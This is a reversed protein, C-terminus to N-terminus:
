ENIYNYRLDFFKNKKKTMGFWPPMGNQKNVRKQIKRLSREVKGGTAVGLSGCDYSFHDHACFYFGLFTDFGRM